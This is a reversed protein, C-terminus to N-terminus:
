EEGGGVLPGGHTNKHGRRVRYGASLLIRAVIDAFVFSRLNGLHVPGYVTPGCSYMTVLGRKLPTFLGRKGSLTNTFFVSAADTREPPRALRKGFPWMRLKM